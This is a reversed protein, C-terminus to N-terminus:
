DLVKKILDIISLDAPLWQVSDLKDKGLCKTSEAEKLVLEGVEIDVELEAKIERM